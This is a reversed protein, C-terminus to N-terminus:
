KLGLVAAAEERLMRLGSDYGDNPWEEGRVADDYYRLAADTNGVRWHAMARFLQDGTGLREDQLRTARDLNAVAARFDGARYQAAGLTGVFSSREGRIVASQALRVARASDRLTEVPCTVLFWALHNRGAPDMPWEAVYKEYVDRAEACCSAAQEANGRRVHFWTLQILSNHWDDRARLYGYVAKSDDGLYWEGPPAAEALSRYLRVAKVYAAEAEKFQGTHELFSAHRSTLQAPTSEFWYPFAGTRSPDAFLREVIEVAERWTSAADEVRGTRWRILAQNGLHWALWRRPMPKGSAALKRQIAIAEDAVRNAEAAKGVIQLVFALQIRYNGAYEAHTESPFEVTWQDLQRIAEKY